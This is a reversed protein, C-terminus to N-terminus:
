ALRRKLRGILGLGIMGLVVAGPAPIVNVQYASGVTVNAVEEFNTNGFIPEVINLTFTELLPAGAGISVGITVFDMIGIGTGSVLDVAFTGVDDSTNANAANLAQPTPDLVDGADDSWIVGDFSVSELTFIDPASAQIMVQGSVLSETTDLEIIVDFFSGPMVAISDLGFEDTIRASLDALATRGPLTLVGLVVAYLLSRKM